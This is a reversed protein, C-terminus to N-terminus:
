LYRLWRKEPHQMKYRGYWKCFPYLIIVVLIWVAYIAPLSIGSEGDPRGFKFPAFNFDKWAFGQAFLMITIAARVLCWHFLYYFMPVKGYVNLVRQVIAPVKDSLFLALFMLGLFLSVFALSPPQKSVNLFSMVTYLFSDGAQWHSPDGYANISRIIVFFLLLAAAIRLFQRSQWEFPQEFLKGTAFGLLIIGVWPILPYAVLILFDPTVTHLGPRTLVSILFNLGANEQAPIGLTLENFALFIFGLLGVKWPTVRALLSLVIFGVGIAAIVELLLLRFQVDFWLLFNIITFELIILWLGRKWLFNRSSSKDTSRQYSLYASVGALFVFIPACLHTIWRTFFVPATATTLDTPTQTLATTHLLERVHDLAMIVLVMGRVIDISNIRKM